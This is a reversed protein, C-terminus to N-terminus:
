DTLEEEVENWLAELDLRIEPLALSGYLGDLPLAVVFRGDENRLLNELLVKMSFPLRSIGELGNKEAEVLSYYVHDKGNVTLTKRCKFSDIKSM